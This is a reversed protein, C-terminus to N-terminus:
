YNYGKYKHVRLIVYPQELRVHRSHLLDLLLYVYKVFLSLRSLTEQRETQGDLDNVVDKPKM